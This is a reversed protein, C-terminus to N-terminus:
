YYISSFDFYNILGYRFLVIGTAGSPTGAPSQIAYRCDTELDSAPLNVVNNDGSYTQLGTWVESQITPDAAIAAKVENAFWGSTTFIWNTTKKYNYRYVM